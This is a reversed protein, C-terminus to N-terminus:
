GGAPIGYMCFNIARDIIADEKRRQHMEFAVDGCSGINGAYRRMIRDIMQNRVTDDQDSFLAAEMLFELARVREDLSM